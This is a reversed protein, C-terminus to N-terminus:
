RFLNGSGDSLAGFYSELLRAAPDSKALETEGANGYEGAPRDPVNEALVGGLGTGTRWDGRISIALRGLDGLWGGATAGVGFGFFLRFQLHRDGHIAARGSVVGEGSQGGGALKRTGDIGIRIPLSGLEMKGSGVWADDAGTVM